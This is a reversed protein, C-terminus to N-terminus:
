QENKKKNIKHKIIFVGAKIMLIVAMIVFGFSCIRVIDGELSYGFAAGLLMVMSLLLNMLESTCQNHRELEQIRRLMEIVQDEDYTHISGDSDEGDMLEAVTIGLKQCLNQVISYDPMCKGTEWKSITKNSVNLQEALQEQTLNLEKRKQSIFKGTKYQNMENGGKKQLTIM